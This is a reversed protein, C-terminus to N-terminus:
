QFTCQVSLLMKGNETLFNKQIDIINKGRFPPNEFKVLSSFVPRFSLFGYTVSVTFGNAPRKEPGRLEKYVEQGVGLAVLSCLSQFSYLLLFELSGM